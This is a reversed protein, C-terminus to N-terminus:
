VLMRSTTSPSMISQGNLIANLLNRQYIPILLSKFKELNGDVLGYIEGWAWEMLDGKNRSGMEIYNDFAIAYMGKYHQGTDDLTKPFLPKGKRRAYAPTYPSLRNGKSDLGAKLQAQNMRILEEKLENVSDRWVKDSDVKIKGWDEIM